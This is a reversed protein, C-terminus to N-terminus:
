TEKEETTNELTIIVFDDKEEGTEETELIEENLDELHFEVIELMDELYNRLVSDYVSNFRKDKEIYKVFGFVEQKFLILQNREKEKIDRLSM